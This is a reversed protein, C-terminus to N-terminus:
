LGRRVDRKLDEASVERTMIGVLPLVVLGFLLTLSLLGQFFQATSIDFFSIPEM